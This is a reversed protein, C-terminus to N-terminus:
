CSLCSVHKSLDHHEESLSMSIHVAITAPSVALLYPSRRPQMRLQLGDLARTMKRALQWRMLLWTLIHIRLHGILTSIRKPGEHPKEIGWEALSRHTPLFLGRKSKQYVYEESRSGYQSTGGKWGNVTGKGKTIM